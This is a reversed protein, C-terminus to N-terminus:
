IALLTAIIYSVMWTAAVAEVVLAQAFIAIGVHPFVEGVQKVVKGEGCEYFILHM